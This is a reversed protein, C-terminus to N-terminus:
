QLLLNYIVQATESRKAPQLPEFQQEGTGQMLGTSAAKSVYEGAWESIHGADKYDLGSGGIAQGTKYEMARVIMAAMEERTIRAQPAFSTESKGSVLGAEYAASVAGAYWASQDVDQFPAPQAAKLGLARVLLAAFEARTTQGDPDFATETRGSVIHKAALTQVAELAWHGSSVDDFSRKVEMLAYKSFHNLQATVKKNIKDISGGAYEWAQAEENFYYIGLLNENADTGEYSIILEVPQQFKEPAGLVKNDKMVQINLELVGGIAGIKTHSAKNTQTLAQSEAASLAEVSVAIEADNVGSALTLADNLVTGPIALKVSGKSLDLKGIRNDHLARVPLLVKNESSKLEVEIKGHKANKLSSENVVVMDTPAPTPTPTVTVPAPSASPTPDASPSASPAPDASPSASPMPDASPSASPVPDASPSASPVPDASPSASPVPDASPSASPTPDPSSSAPPTTEIPPVVPDTWLVPEQVVIPGLYGLTLRDMDIGLEQTAEEMKLTITNGVQQTSLYVTIVSESWETKNAAFVIVGAKKGNIFVSRRTEAGPNKYHVTLSYNGDSGAPGMALTMLDGQQKFDHIYGVEAVVAEITANGRKVVGDSEAELQTGDVSIRDLQISTPQNYAPLLMITNSGQRLTAELTIEQWDGAAAEFVIPLAKGNVNLEYYGTEAAKYRFQLPAAGAETREYQVTLSDGSQGFDDIWSGGKAVGNIITEPAEAELKRPIQVLGHLNLWMNASDLKLTVTNTGQNLVSEFEHLGWWDNGYWGNSNLAVTYVADNVTVQGSVQNDTRYLFGLKYSGAEAADFTFTVSKAPDGNFNDTKAEEGTNVLEVGGAATVHASDSVPLVSPEVLLSDLNLYQGSSVMTLRVKNQGAQLPLNISKWSWKGDGGWGGTSRFLVDDGYVQGGVSIDGVPNNGSAYKFAVTYTGGSPVALDFEVYDPANKMKNVYTETAVAPHIQIQADKTPMWGIAAKEAEYVAGGIRLGDVKMGSDSLGSKLTITNIGARLTTSVDQTKFMEWGGTPSFAVTQPVESDNVWLQRTVPVADIGYRITVPYEGDSAVAVQFTIYDGETEFNYVHGYKDVKCSILEAYEAEYVQTSGAMRVNLSDINLWLDSTNLQLMVSNGGAQLNAKVVADGVPNGWGTKQSFPISAAATEGNVTLRGEPSGGGNDHGYKLILEYEGAEPAQITWIIKDEDKKGFDGVWGPIKGIRSLFQETRPAGVADSVEYHDGVAQKYNMYGAIVMAKGGDKQRTDDVVLKLDRYRDKDQWIESYDFDTKTGPNPVDAYGANGGVMNFTVHNRNPNNLTLSDKVSNILSDYDKSYYRPNGAYDYLFDSDSAGWQDLHIGDFGFENVSRDFEKNIYTQWDPNGPDQLYLATPPNVWDFYFGNQFKVPDPDPFVTNKNYLGWERQVGFDEYHERAAYNMQYAMAASGYKQASAVQQKVSMPFLHRGLLDAYSTDEDIPATVFDGNGDRVPKGDADTRSYVSVDHRWMWDYFQYGNLYYDQSLQKLKADSEATTEKPFETVYGYRPFHTWDSSVDLAATKFAEPKGEVYVKVQYGRFDATPPNWSVEVEADGETVPVRVQDVLRNMQYFEVQLSGSWPNSQDLQVTYAAAESPAYRAKGATVKRIPEAPLNAPVVGVGSTNGLGTGDRDMVIMEWYNLEPLTFELNTGNWVPALEKLMGGDHDPSAAYVKLNPAEQATIGIPYTIKLNNLKEPEKAANRWNDDNNLLNVLHLIDYREFGANSGNKRTIAWITEPAGDISLALAEGGATSVSAQVMTDEASDFLVNEYATFFKYYDKMSEKLSPKMKKSRNPYYEHALMNPGEEIKEATGLEIHTAGMAALGADMLRISPEDFYGITLRRLDISGKDDAEHKLTVKHAGATLYPAVYYTDENLSDRNSTGNFWIRVPKGDGGIVPQDDIYLTKTAVSGANAYTFILSTEGAQELNVHFSIRDGIHGFDLLMNKYITMPPIFNAKEAHYREMGVQLFDLKVGDDDRDEQKITIQNTGANLDVGATLAPSWVDGTYTFATDEKKVGNVYVTRVASRKSAADNKYKWKLDVTGAAAAHVDFTLFDGEDKFDGAYGTSYRIGHNEPAFAADEVEYERNGAVLSDINVYQGESVMVLKVTHRGASVSAKAAKEVMGGGWGGPTAGFTVDDAVVQDDVLVDFKPNNDTRYKFILESISQQLNVDFIVTQGSHGHDDTKGYETTIGGTRPVVPEWGTQAAEAELTIMDSPNAPLAEASAVGAPLAATQLLIAAALVGGFWPRNRKTMDNM